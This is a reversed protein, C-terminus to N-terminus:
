KIVTDNGRREISASFFATLADTMAELDSVACTEMTSHMALQAIGIDVTPVSVKTDSICGLTGGGPIDPRNSYNQLAAGSKSVISRFISESYADTAYRRNANHKIVVGGGLTCFEKADSLEPHNPHKAHANDASVMFSNAIMTRYNEGAIRSLTDFLFTSGAGETTASGIEENNFVALVPISESDKASLFAEMSTYVCGLDDIRPALLLEEEAGIRVPAEANVLYLDSALINEYSEGSLRELLSEFKNDGCLSFLPYTDVNANPSFAEEIKRNLHPAVSPIVFLPADSSVLRESVGSDTRVMVRGAVTLPRDFWSYTITGGYRETDLSLYAGARASAGKIRFAPSDAHSAVIMFGNKAGSVRFAILSSGGRVVFYNGETLTWADAEYLETYGLETLTKRMAEVAHYATKSYSLFDMFSQVKKM